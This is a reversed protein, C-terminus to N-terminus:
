RKCNGIQLSLNLSENVSNALYIRMDPFIEMTSLNLLKNAEYSVLWHTCDRRTFIEYKYSQIQKSSDPSNSKHTGGLNCQGLYLKTGGFCSNRDTIQKYYRCSHATCTDYKRQQQKLQRSTALSLNLLSTRCFSFEFSTERCDKRFHTRIKARVKREACKRLKRPGLARVGHHGSRVFNGVVTWKANWTLKADLTAFTRAFNQM